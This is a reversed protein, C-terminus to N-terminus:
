LERRKLELLMKNALLTLDVNHLHTDILITLYIYRLQCLHTPAFLPVTTQFTSSKKNPVKQSCVYHHNSSSMWKHETYSVERYITLEPIIDWLQTGMIDKYTILTTQNLTEEQNCSYEYGM